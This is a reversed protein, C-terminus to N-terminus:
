VTKYSNYILIIFDFIISISLLVQTKKVSYDTALSHTSEDFNLYIVINNKRANILFFM